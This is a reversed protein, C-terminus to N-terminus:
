SEAQPLKGLIGWLWRHFRHIFASPQAFMLICEGAIASIGNEQCLRLAEPSQAGQQMWVRRIGAAAADRVLQETQAPPVVLVVGEVRKPLAGFSSFCPVGDIEAAVPHVPLVEYGKALLEKLITNGFKRGGRSAGALALTKGALFDDIEKQTTM